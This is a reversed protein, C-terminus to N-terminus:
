YGLSQLTAPQGPRGLRQRVKSIGYLVLIQGVVPIIIWLVAGIHFIDENYRTGLRWIGIAVGIIGIIAIIAGLLLVGVGGLLAGIEACSTPVPRMTGACNITGILAQIVLLLGLVVIVLGVIGVLSLTSPSRFEDDVPALRAFALRLFYLSTVTLVVSLVVFLELEYLITVVTVGGATLATTLDLHFLPGLALDIFIGLAAGVLSIIAALQLHNLVPEDLERSPAPARPPVLVWQPSGPPYTPLPFAPAPPVVAALAFGCVGCFRAGPPAPAGCRVCAAAVM